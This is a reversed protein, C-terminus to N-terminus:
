LQTFHMATGISFLSWRAVTVLSLSRCTDSGRSTRVQGGEHCAVSSGPANTKCM